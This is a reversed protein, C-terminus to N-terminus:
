SFKEVTTTILDITDFDDLAVDLPSLSLGLDDNLSFLLSVASLSDLLGTSFLPTDDAIDPDIGLNDIVLARVKAKM